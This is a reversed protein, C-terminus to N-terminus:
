ALLKELVQAAERLADVGPKVYHRRTTSASSHGAWAALVSDSVGASELFTLASARADYLRVERVGVVVMLRKAETRLTRTNYPRGLRDVVVYGSQEYAGPPAALEERAQLTRFDRLAVHVPLPLPLLREGAETKTDKEVVKGAVITRTNTLNITGEDLDVDEDWRAGCVEAPREAILALLMPAFMREGKIGALFARVEAPTWPVLLKKGRTRAKLAPKPIETFQAVNRVVKRRRLAVNLCARLRGLTLEVSRAGVGSGRSESPFKRGESLMRSVLEDVDDETLQQLPIHGLWRKVPQMANDYNYATGVEVHPSKTSLWKDVWEGVTTKDDAVYEGRNSDTILAARANKAETLTDKTVTKQNRKGDAGRPLDVVFRYRTKGNKLTIKKIGDAM